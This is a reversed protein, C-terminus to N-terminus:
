PYKVKKNFQQDYYIYKKIYEIEYGKLNILFLEFILQHLLKFNNNFIWLIKFNFLIWEIKLCQFANVVIRKKNILPVKNTVIKAKNNYFSNVELINNQGKLKTLTKECDSKSSYYSYLMQDSKILNKGNELGSFFIEGEPITVFVQYFVIIWKM